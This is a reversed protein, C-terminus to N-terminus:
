AGKEILAKKAERRALQRRIRGIEPLQESLSGYIWITSRYKLFKDEPVTILIRELRDEIEDTKLGLAKLSEIFGSAEDLSRSKELFDSLYKLEPDDILEM